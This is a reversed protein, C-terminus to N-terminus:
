LLGIEKADKLLVLAVDEDYQFRKKNIAISNRINGTAHRKSAAKWDCLLEIMDLCSMEKMGKIYHEPHHSNVSYHHILAVNLEKLYGQYIESGYECNKLLHTLKRFYPEEKKSFKSLDHLLARKILAICCKSIYWCV